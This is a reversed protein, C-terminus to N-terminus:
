TKAEFYALTGRERHQGVADQKLMQGIGLCGAADHAFPDMNGSGLGCTCDLVYITEQEAQLIKYNTHIWPLISRCLAWVLGTILYCQERVIEDTRESQLIGRFGRAAIRQEYQGIAHNIADRIVQVPPFADHEQLYKYLSELAVHTYSGTMLPLSEAKRVLGYGTPGFHYKLYRERACRGTGTTYRSRDTLWLTLPSM